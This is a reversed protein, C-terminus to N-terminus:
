QPEFILPVGGWNLFLISYHFARNFRAEDMRKNFWAASYNSKHSAVEHMFTNAKRISTYLAAWNYRSITAVGVAGGGFLGYNSQSPDLIGDKYKWSAYYFGADNDDTFNDLTEPQSYMDPLQDYVDNLFIDANSESAWQTPDTLGTKSVNDLHKDCAFLGFFATALCAYLIYKRSKM